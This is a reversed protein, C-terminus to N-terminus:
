SWFCFCNESRTDVVPKNEAPNEQPGPRMHDHIKALLSYSRNRQWAVFMDYIQVDPAAAKAHATLPLM